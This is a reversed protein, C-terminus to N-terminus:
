LLIVDSPFLLTLNVIHVNFFNSVLWDPPFLLPSQLWLLGAQEMLYAQDETSPDVDTRGGLDLYSSGPSDSSGLLDYPLHWTAHLSLCM